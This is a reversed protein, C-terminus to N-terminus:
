HEITHQTRTPFHVQLGIVAPPAHESVTLRNSDSGEAVLREAQLEREVPTTSLSGTLPDWLDTIDVPWLQNVQQWGNARLGVQLHFLSENLLPQPRPTNIYGYFQRLLDTFAADTQLFLAEMEERSSPVPPLDGSPLLQLLQRQAMQQLSIVTSITCDTAMLKRFYPSLDTNARGFFNFLCQKTVRDQFAYVSTLPDPLKRSTLLPRDLARRGPLLLHMTPLSIDDRWETLRNAQMVVHEKQDDSLQGHDINTNQDLDPGIVLYRVTPDEWWTGIVFHRLRAWIVHTYDSWLSYFIPFVYPGDWALSVMCHHIHHPHLVSPSYEDEYEAQMHGDFATYSKGILRKWAIPNLEMPSIQTILQQILLRRTGIITRFNWPSHYRISALLASHAWEDPDIKGGPLYDQLLHAFNPWPPAARERQAQQLRELVAPSSSVFHTLYRTTTALDNE